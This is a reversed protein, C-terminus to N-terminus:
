HTKRKSSRSCCSKNILYLLLVCFLIFALIVRANKEAYHSVEGYLNIEPCTCNLTCNFVQEPQQQQKQFALVDNRDLLSLNHLSAFERVSEMTLKCTTMKNQHLQDSAGTNNNSNNNGNALM